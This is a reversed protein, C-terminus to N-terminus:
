ENCTYQVWPFFDIHVQTFFACEWLDSREPPHANEYPYGLCAPRRRSIWHSEYSKYIMYFHEELLAPSGNCGNDHNRVFFM